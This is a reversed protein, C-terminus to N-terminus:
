RNAECAESLRVITRQITGYSFGRSALFAMLRRNFAASDERTLRRARKSAAKYAEELDDIEDTAEEAVDTTVGRTGLEYRVMRRSRAPRSDVYFRAFAADDLLGNKRLRAIASEIARASMKKLRLRKRLEQESRPRYGLLRLGARYAGDKMELDRLIRLHGASLEEGVRLNREAALEVSVALAFEGDIHVNIRRGSRQKELRTVIM